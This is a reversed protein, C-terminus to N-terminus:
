NLNLSSINARFKYVVAAVVMLAGFVIMVVPTSYSSAYDEGGYDTLWEVIVQSSAIMMAGCIIACIGALIACGLANSPIEEGKCGLMKSLAVIFFVCFLVAAIILVVALALETSYMDFFDSDRETPAMSAIQSFGAFLGFLMSYTTQSASSSYEYEVSIGGKALFGIAILGFILSAAALLGHPACKRLGGVKINAGIEAFVSIALFVAGLVIGAVTAGGLSTKYLIEEYDYLSTSSYAIDNYTYVCLMFLAVSCVFAIFTAACPGLLGKETKGNFVSWVRVAAVLFCVVTVTLAVACCVTAFVTGATLANNAYTKASTLLDYADGFFYFIGVASNSNTYSESYSSYSVTLSYEIFFVFIIGVLAALVAFLASVKKLLPSYKELVCWGGEAAAVPPTLVAADVSTAAVETAPARSPAEEGAGCNICFDGESPTLKGCAPCVRMGDLRSGCKKCFVADHPNSTGCNKCDM